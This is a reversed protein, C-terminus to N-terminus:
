SFHHDVVLEAKAFLQLPSHLVQDVSVLTFPVLHHLIRFFSFPIALEHIGIFGYSINFQDVFAALRTGHISRSVIPRGPFDAQRDGFHKVDLCRSRRMSAM